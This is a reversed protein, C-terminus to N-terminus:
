RSLRVGAPTPAGYKNEQKKGPIIALILIGVVSIISLLSLLLSNDTIDNSRQKVLILLFVFMALLFPFYVAMALTGATNVLTDPHSKSLSDHLGPVLNLITGLVILFFFILIPISVLGVLYTVRNIRRRPRFM